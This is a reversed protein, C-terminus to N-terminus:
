QPMTEATNSIPGLGIAPGPETPAPATGTLERCSSLTTRGCVTRHKGAVTEVRMLTKRITRKCRACVATDTSPDVNTPVHKTDTM